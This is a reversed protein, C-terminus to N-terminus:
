TYGATPFGTQCNKVPLISIEAPLSPILAIEVAIGMNEPNAMGVTNTSIGDRTVPFPFDM